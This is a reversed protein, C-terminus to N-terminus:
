SGTGAKDVAGVQTGEKSSEGITLSNQELEKELQRGIMRSKSNGM